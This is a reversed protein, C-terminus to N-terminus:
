QADAAVRERLEAVNFDCAGSFDVDCDDFFAKLPALVPEKVANHLYTQLRPVHKLYTENDDLTAQKIFQGIVRCHFQTAMIRFWAQQVPDMENLIQAKVDPSVVRRADELLNTFDYVSPGIMAGQFDLVGLASLGKENNMVMLNQAHFDVHVFGQPCPPVSKEIKEWVAKYEDVLGDENACGRTMPMYWDVVRRHRRHVHSEYYDPLDLPCDQDAIHHLIDAANNYLAAEQSPDTELTDRLCADGFDELLVYGHELNIEYIEPARVGVSRLWESIRIFDGLAHGPTAHPSDDPVTEMLIASQTGKSVRFYRRISSDKGVPKDIRWGHQELFMRRHDEDFVPHLQTAHALNM